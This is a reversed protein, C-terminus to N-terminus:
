LLKALRSAYWIASRYSLSTSERSHGVIVPYAPEFGARGAVDFHAMSVDAARLPRSVRLASVPFPLPLLPVSELGQRSSSLSLPLLLKPFRFKTTKTFTSQCGQTATPFRGVRFAVDPICSGILGSPPECSRLGQNLGSTAPHAVVWVLM